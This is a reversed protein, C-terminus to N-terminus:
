NNIVEKRRKGLPSDSFKLSLKVILSQPSLLKLCLQVLVASFHDVEVSFEVLGHPKLLPYIVSVIKKKNISANQIKLQGQKHQNKTGM